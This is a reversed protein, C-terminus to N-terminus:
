LGMKSRRRGYENFAYGFAGAVMGLGRVARREGRARHVLSRTVIGWAARAYGALVFLAGHALRRTSMIIRQLPNRALARDVRVATNGARFARMLVWPRTFRDPDEQEFVLATECWRLDAGWATFERTFLSDSGGTLGFEENFSLSSRLIASVDLLLNNSAAENMRQGDVRTPRVFAGAAFVWAPTADPFLTVVRGAVGDAGTRIYATVLENLWDEAPVEDDDLLILATQDVSAAVSANRVAAIGPRPEHLYAVGFAEVLSRASAEPDNDIVIVSASYNGAENAETVQPMLATLLRSIGEPRRFTPVAIRVTVSM